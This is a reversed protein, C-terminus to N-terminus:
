KEAINSENTEDMYKAIEEKAKTLSDDDPIVVSLLARGASYTSRFGGTGTVQISNIEWSPNNSIQNKALKTINEENLNTVISNSLSNVITSYSNIISPSTLKNIIAKLVIEQNEGRALDGGAFTHRHRAFALAQEGNLTQTGARLCIQYSGFRRQSDQECFSKPINVQIGNLSNVINVLTSFNTKFYFDIDRSYLDEMTGITEDIGYIGSHTLKDYSNKSRLKVYYDRPTHILLIKNTKPNVVVLINVDSRGVNKISGSTDIGSILVTFPEKTVNVNSADIKEKKKITIRDIVRYKKILESYEENILDNVTESVYIAEVKRNIGANLIDEIDEYKEESKLTVKQNLAKIADNLMDSKSNYIALDHGALDSTKQYKSENLVYIDFVEEKVLTGTTVKKILNSTNEINYSAYIMFVILISTIIMFPIKIFVKFKKNLIFLLFLDILVIGVIYIIFYLTTLINLKYINYTLYISTIILIFSLLFNFLKLKRKKKKKKIQNIDKTM